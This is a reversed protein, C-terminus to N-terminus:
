GDGGTRVWQTLLLSVAVIATGAMFTAEHGYVRWLLGGLAPVFIASLHNITQGMSVNSTIEEPTAAIKQFYTNLALSSGFLINDVVFFFVLLSLWAVYAYGTFIVALLAFNATLVAREGFRGVLRGMAPYSATTVISNVLYLIAAQQVTVGHESVLLFIAFTTFIHRRSGMLFTLLYYLWYRKRFVTKRPLRQGSGQRGLVLVVLGGAVTLAGILYLLSRYGLPRALLFVLVTGLVSAGAGIGALAGLVDPADEKRAYTLALSSNTPDFFHFGISMVMTGVLLGGFDGAKGSVLLGAGTLAVCLGTLRMEPMLLVIFGLLFGLLGPIERWSQILGVRDAGLGFVDVAYNNFLVSWAAFGLNLFFGGVALLQLVQRAEPSAQRGATILNPLRM